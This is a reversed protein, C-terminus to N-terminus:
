TTVAMEKTPHSILKVIFTFLFVATIMQILIASGSLLWYTTSFKEIIQSAVLGKNILFHLSVSFGVGPCILAYIIPSKEEGSMVSRFYDMKKMVATGLLILFLQSAFIMALFFFSSSAESVHLTHALGHDIRMIAISLTTLIPVGVWLTPLTMKSAGHELMHSIGIVLKVLTIFISPILFVSALLISSAVTLKDDSMAAPAALGVSIMAFAFGPLLQALSNNATKDFQNESVTHSFFDFYIRMSWIGLMVFGSLAIPFLIEVVNWLNPIFVAGLIFGANITMALTLPIALLQTHANTGKIKQLFGENKWQKYHSLNWVVLSLHLLSFLIIGSLAIGIMVQSAASGQAFALAIDEYVPIPQGPHKIWFMLYMFFTIVMGGAGLASLFFLPSWSKNRQFIM